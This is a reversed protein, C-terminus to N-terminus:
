VEVPSQPITVYKCEAFKQSTRGQSSVEGDSDMLEQQSSHQSSSIIETPHVPKYDSIITASKSQSTRHQHYKYYVLLTVLVILLIAVTSIGGFVIGRVIEPSLTEKKDELDM